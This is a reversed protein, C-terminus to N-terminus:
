LKLQYNNNRMKYVQFLGLYSIQSPYTKIFKTPLTWFQKMKKM